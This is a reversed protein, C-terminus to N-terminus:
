PSRSPFRNMEPSRSSFLCKSLWASWASFDPAGSAGFLRKRASPLIGHDTSCSPYQSRKPLAKRSPVHDSATGSVPTSTPDVLFPLSAKEFRNPFMRHGLPFHTSNEESFSSSEQIAEYESYRMNFFPKLPRKKASHPNKCGTVPIKRASKLFAPKRRNSLVIEILDGFSFECSDGKGGQPEM